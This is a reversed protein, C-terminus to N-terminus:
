AAAQAIITAGDRIAWSVAQLMAASDILPTSSGKREITEPLLGPAWSPSDRITQQVLNAVFIGIRSLAEKGTRKGEMVDGLQQDVFSSIIAANQEFTQRLFPRKDVSVTGFEMFTGIDVITAQGDPSELGSQGQLGITVSKGELWKLERQIAKFTKDRDIVEIPM